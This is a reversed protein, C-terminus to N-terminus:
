RTILQGYILDNTYAKDLGCESQIESSSVEPYTPGTQFSYKNLVTGADLTCPTGTLKENDYFTSRALLVYMGEAQKYEQACDSTFDTDITLGQTFDSDIKAPTGDPLIVYGDWKHYATGVLFVSGAAAKKTDDSSWSGPGSPVMLSREVKLTGACFWSFASPIGNPQKAADAVGSDTSTDESTDSSGCGVLAFSGILALACPFRHRM